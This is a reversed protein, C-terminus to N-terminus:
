TAVIRGEIRCGALALDGIVDLIKHRVFEDPWRLSNEVVTGKGVVLTNQTNAGKGFGKERLANAESELCFTRASGIEEAFAKPSWAFNLHQVPIEETNYDLTYDVSFGEGPLAVITYSG